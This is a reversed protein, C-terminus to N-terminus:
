TKREWKEGAHAAWYGEGAWEREDRKKGRGAWTRGEWLPGTRKIERMHLGAQGMPVVWRM